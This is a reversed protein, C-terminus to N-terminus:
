GDICFDFLFWKPLFAGTTTKQAIIEFTIALILFLVFKVIRVLGIEKSNTKIIKEEKKTETEKIVLVEDQKPLEEVVVNEKTM